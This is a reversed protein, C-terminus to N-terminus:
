AVLPNTDWSSKYWLLVPLTPSYRTLRLVADGLLTGPMPPQAFRPLPGNWGNSLAAGIVPLRLVSGVGNVAGAIPAGVGAAVQSLLARVKNVPVAEAAVQAAALAGEPRLVVVLAAVLLPVAGLVSQAM